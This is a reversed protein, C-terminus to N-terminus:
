HLESFGIIRFDLGEKAFTYQFKQLEPHKSEIILEYQNFQRKIDIVEGKEFSDISPYRGLISFSAAMESVVVDKALKDREKSPESNSLQHLIEIKDFGVEKLYNETYFYPTFLEYTFFLIILFSTMVEISFKFRLSAMWKNLKKVVRVIFIIILIYIIFEIIFHIFLFNIYHENQFFIFFLFVGVLFLFAKQVLERM